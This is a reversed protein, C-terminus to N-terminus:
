WAAALLSDAAVVPVTRLQGGALNLEQVVGPRLLYVLAFRGSVSVSLGPQSVRGAALERVPTVLTGLRVDYGAIASATAENPPGHGTIAFLVSGAASLETASVAGPLRVAKRNRRALPGPPASTRVMWAAAPRPDHGPGTAPAALFSLLAGNPSLSLDRPTSRTTWATGKGSSVDIVGLRLAPVQTACDRTAYAVMKGNASAALASDGAVVGPVTWASLPAMNVPRGGSGLSFRYFWTTCVKAGPAPSAAAVFTRDSGFTAVAQFWRDRGPPRLRAVTHGSIASYVELGAAALVGQRPRRIGVFYRPGSGGLARDYSRVATSGGPRARQHGALLRPVIATMTVAIVTVAMAAALPVLVQDRLWPGGPRGAWPRGPRAWPARRSPRRARARALYAAPWPPGPISGPDVTEAAATFADRLRLETAIVSEERRRSM